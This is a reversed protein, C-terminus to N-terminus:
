AAVMEPTISARGVEGYEKHYTIVKASRGSMWGGRTAYSDPSALTRHQEVLMLNTEKIQDNHLHGMHAYAHETRGYIERYKAVFVDDVNAVKRKHGHHFFLATKGHEYCYYPQATLDVTVRPEDELNAHFSESLWISADPDHNGEAMIIHVHEHSKLLMRVVRRIVRIAIRVILRKRTDADLVNRSTPTVAELGDWHLFDGLQALVAVRAQPASRIAATFWDVLLQEAIKVDWDAGTEEAWANMGLHYDTVVFCNLLNADTERTLPLEPEEKPIEEKLAEVVERMLAAQEKKDRSEMVWQIGDETRVLTSIGHVAFGEHPLPVESVKALMRRLKSRTIGLARAAAAKNGGSLELAEIVDQQNM